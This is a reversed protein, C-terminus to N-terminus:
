MQEWEDASKPRQRQKIVELALIDRLSKATAPSGGGPVTGAMSTRYDYLPTRRAIMDRMAAIDANARRNGIARLAFGTALPLTGAVAGTVPDDKFYQGALGGGGVGTALSIHSALGGGGGLVNSAGRLLNTANTGRTYSRLADREAQTFGAKSAPSEGGKEKVYTRVGKRLENQLNLGSYTAGTTDAANHILEDIAQVRKYGAYDGRANRALTSAQRAAEETGPLVAGPPPNEIFDNLARKVISASERDTLTRDNKPIKNLGKVIFDINGPDVPAGIGTNLQGPAGGTRAEEIGRWTGPSDRWHYREALLRQETENAVDRLASQEYRAGSRGLAGYGTNKAAWLEAQTPVAAASTAPGRGFIAGGAAGLPASIAGGILANEVYDMPKGTYTSGAGQAAGTVAGTGGYALARAAAGGGMRAALGGAGLSPVAFAGYVDGAVSAYPSRARAVESLRAQEDTGTGSIYGKLRNAMGFTAANSVARGFDNATDLWGSAGDDEVPKWDDSAM